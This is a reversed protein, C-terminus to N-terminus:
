ELRVTNRVIAVSRTRVASPASRVVTWAGASTTQDGPGRRKSTVLTPSSGQRANTPSHRQGRHGLLLAARCGGPDAVTASGSRGTSGTTALEASSLTFGTYGDEAVENCRKRYAGVGGPYPMFVRPKGPINAGLYWSDALMFMTQEAIENVHAVWEKEADADAECSPRPGAPAIHEIADGIWEVHQEISVPM